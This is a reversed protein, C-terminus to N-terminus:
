KEELQFVKFDYYKHFSHTMRFGFNGENYVPYKVPSYHSKYFQKNDATATAEIDYKMEYVLKNNVVISRM